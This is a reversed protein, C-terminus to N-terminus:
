ASIVLNAAYGFICVPLKKDKYSFYVFQFLQINFILFVPHPNIKVLSPLFINSM